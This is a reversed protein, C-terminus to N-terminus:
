DARVAGDFIDSGRFATGQIIDDSGVAFYGEKGYRTKVLCWEKADTGILYVVDGPKLLLSSEKSTMSKYLTLEKKVKLEPNWGSTYFDKTIHQLKHESDLKFEDMYSWTMLVDTRKNTIVKGRGNVSNKNGCHGEVKGVFKLAKGDYYYFNTASDDSPGDEEVAIEKYKDKSDIDVIQFEKLGNDISEEVSTNNVTLKYKNPNGYANKILEYFIKDPKKDGNLDYDLRGKSSVAIFRDKDDMAELAKITAVNKGETETLAGNYSSNPKYWPKGSFYNKLDTDTFIYGHRAYIENRALKLSPKDMNWLSHETLLIIDSGPLLYENHFTTSHSTEDKNPKTSNEESKDANKDAADSIVATNSPKNIGAKNPPNSGIASKATSFGIYSLAATLVVVIATWKWAEKNLLSSM